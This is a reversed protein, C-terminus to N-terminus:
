YDYIHELVARSAPLARILAALRAVKVDLVLRRSGPKAQVPVSFMTVADALKDPAGEPVQVTVMINANGGIEVLDRGRAALGAIIETLIRFRDTEILSRGDGLSRVLTIRPDAKVDSPDLGEVVSRLRMQTPYATAGWGILAAYISKTGWELTLAFRRELKRPAYGRLLSTEMWFQKLRAFFPFEFWPTQQLFRAYEDAVKQALEDEATKRPGRLFSTIRGVTEEWLGKIGMEAAFSVGIVYLMVKYEGTITGRSSAMESIHCLSSWYRVIASFYGYDSESSRRMVGALDEYAHVISWEPYTLYTNIEDRREGPELVSKFTSAQKVPGICRAEVWLIPTAALVIVVGLAIGAWTLRRWWREPLWSRM